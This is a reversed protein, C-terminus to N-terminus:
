GQRSLLLLHRAGHRTVLHQALEAGVGGTGGTILVTGGAALALPTAAAPDNSSAVSTSAHLLRPLLYAGRRLAAEAASDTCLAAGLVARSLPSDDIDLLSWSREPHESCVTRLLGWLGSQPLAQAAEQLQTSVAGQTLLVYRSQALTDARLLAQLEAL